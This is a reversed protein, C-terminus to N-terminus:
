FFIKYGDNKPDHQLEYQWPTMNEKAYKTFYDRNWISFQVSTRYESDQEAEILQFDNYDGIM